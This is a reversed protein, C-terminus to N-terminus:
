KLDVELKCRKTNENDQKTGVKFFVLVRNKRSEYQYLDFYM